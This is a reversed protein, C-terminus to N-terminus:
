QGQNTLGITKDTFGSHIYSYITLLGAGKFTEYKMILVM